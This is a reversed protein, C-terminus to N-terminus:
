KQNEIAGDVPYGAASLASAAQSFAYDRVLVYDTDFTSLAFVSVKADALVQLLPALIGILSFDLTGAVRFARWGDERRLADRPAEDSPCVLSIEDGTRTLSWFGHSQSPFAPVSNLRCVSLLEPLANLSIRM